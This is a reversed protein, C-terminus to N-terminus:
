VLVGQLSLTNLDSVLLLLLNLNYCSACMYTNCRSMKLAMLEKRSTPRCLSICPLSHYCFYQTAHYSKVRFNRATILVPPLSNSLSIYDSM